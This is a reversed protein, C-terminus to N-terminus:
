AIEKVKSMAKNIDEHIDKGWIEYFKIRKMKYYGFKKRDRAKHKRQREDLMDDTYIEPNSHWYDGQVELVLNHEPLYFDPYYIGDLNYQFIYPIKHEDLYRKVALEIDTGSQCHEFQCKASCYKGKNRKIQYPYVKIEKGCNLCHRIEVSATSGRNRCDLCCFKQNPKGRKPFFEKGCYACIKKVDPDFFRCHPSCYKRHPTPSKFEKGCIM